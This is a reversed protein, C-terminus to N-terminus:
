SRRWILLITLESLGVRFVQRLLDALTVHDWVLNLRILVVEVPVGVRAIVVFWHVLIAALLAFSTLECFWVFSSLGTM